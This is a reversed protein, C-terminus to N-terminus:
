YHITIRTIFPFFILLYKSRILNLIIKYNIYIIIKYLTKIPYLSTKLKIHNLKIPFTKFENNRRILYKFVIELFEDSKICREEMLNLMILQIVM